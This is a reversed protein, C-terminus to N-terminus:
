LVVCYPFPNLELASLCRSAIRRVGSAKFAASSSKRVIAGSDKSSPVGKPVGHVGWERAKRLIEPEGLQWLEILAATAKQECEELIRNMEVLEGRTVKKKPFGEKGKAPTLDRALFQSIEDGVPNVHAHAVRRRQRNASEVAAIMKDTATKEIPHGRRATVVRQLMTKKSSLSDLTFWIARGIETDTVALFAFAAFMCNEIITYHSIARGVAAYYEDKTLPNAM